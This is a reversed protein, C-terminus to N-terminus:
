AYFSFEFVFIVEVPLVIFKRRAVDHNAAIKGRDRPAKRVSVLKM